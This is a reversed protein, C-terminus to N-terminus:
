GLAKPSVLWILEGRGFAVDRWQQVDVDVRALAATPFQVAGGGILRSVTEGWGPQHGVLLLVEAADGEANM